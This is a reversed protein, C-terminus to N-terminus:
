KPAVVKIKVQVLKMVIVEKDLKEVKVLKM